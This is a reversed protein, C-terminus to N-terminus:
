GFYLKYLLAPNQIKEWKTANKQECIDRENMSPYAFHVLFNIKELNSKKKDKRALKSTLNVFFIELTPAIM